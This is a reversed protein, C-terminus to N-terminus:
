LRARQNRTIYSDLIKSIPFADLLIDIVNLYQNKNPFIGFSFISNCPNLDFSGSGNMNNSIGAKCFISTQINLKVLIAKLNKESHDHTSSTVM